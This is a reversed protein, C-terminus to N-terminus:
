DTHTLETSTSSMLPAQRTKKQRDFEVFVIDCLYNAEDRTIRPPGNESIANEGWWKAFEDLWEFTKKGQYKELITTTAEVAAILSVEHSRGDDFTFITSQKPVRLEM